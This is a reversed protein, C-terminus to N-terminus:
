FFDHVGAFLLPRVDGCRPGGPDGRL